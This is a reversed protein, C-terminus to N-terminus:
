ISFVQEQGFFSLSEASYLITDSQGFLGQM